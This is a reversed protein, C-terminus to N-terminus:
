FGIVDRVEAKPGALDSANGSEDRPGAVRSLIAELEEDLGATDAVYPVGDQGFPFRFPDQRRTKARAVGGAEFRGKPKVAIVHVFRDVWVLGAEAPGHLQALAVEDAAVGQRLHLLLPRPSTEGAEPGCGSVNRAMTGRDTMPPTAEPHDGAARVRDKETM